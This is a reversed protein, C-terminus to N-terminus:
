DGEFEDEVARGAGARGSRSRCHAIGLLAGCSHSRTASKAVTAQTRGVGCRASAPGTSARMMAGPVANANRGAQCTRRGDLRLLVTPAATGLLPAHFMSTGTGSLHPWRARSPRVAITHQRRPRTDGGVTPTDGPCETGAYERKCLLAGVAVAMLRDVVFPKTAEPPGDQLTRARTGPSTPVPRRRRERRGAGIRHSMSSQRTSELKGTGRNARTMRSTCSRRPSM